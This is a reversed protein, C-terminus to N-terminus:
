EPITLSRLRWATAFHFTRGIWPGPIDIQDGEPVRWIIETECTGTIIRYLVKETIGYVGDPGPFITLSAHGPLRGLESALPTISVLKRAAPDILALQPTLAPAGMTEEVFRNNAILAYILGEATPAFAQVSGLDDIGFNGTYIACDELTDWLVFAGNKARVQSGTGSEISIGILLQKLAPM